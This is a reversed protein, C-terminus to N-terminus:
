GGDSDIDSDVILFAEGALSDADGSAVGAAEIELLFEIKYVSEGRLPLDFFELYDPSNDNASLNPTTLLDGSVFERAVIKKSSYTGTEKTVILTFSGGENSRLIFMPEDDLVLKMLADYIEGIVVPPISTNLKTFLYKIKKQTEEELSLFVDETLHEILFSQQDDTFYKLNLFLWNM